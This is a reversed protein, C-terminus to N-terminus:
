LLVLLLEKAQFFLGRMLLALVKLNTASSTTRGSAESSAAQAALDAKAEMSIKVGEDIFAAVQKM